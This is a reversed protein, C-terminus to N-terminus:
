RDGRRKERRKRNSAHCRDCIPFGFNPPLNKGCHRCRNSRAKVETRLSEHVGDAIEERVREWYLAETQRGLRYLLLLHLGVAKYSVEKQELNKNKIDPEPLEDGEVIAHMSDLWQQTLQSEKKSFPLHLFGYLDNLSLKAEIQTGRVLDYLEKEEALSAKETGYPSDFRDWLEFFTDLDHHYRQFREFVSSTPAIAFTRLSPDEQLLLHEMKKINKTFSVRGVEYIGKRGARGAIQKVEQSTLLRRRTGDFKENEMFVIRRIPLNLGMGIADTAVIVQTKGKIFQMMQKKRTEPPMSGYIMSVKHGNNQLRSATDLVKKRSFCVLADGNRVQKLKFEKKEVQLPIEREYNYVEAQEEGILELLLSRVNESGIIHVERAKVKTIAKYWSFGRDQDALMQAEDIVVVDYEDKEHFMEVTCAHHRANEIEKEEEGTKLNCPVGENNLKDYVELALLRLPALYMGSDAAKMRTLAKHTKGTNTEGIHLVYRVGGRYSPSYEQGFIDELMREEEQQKKIIAERELAIREERAVMVEKYIAVQESLDFPMDPLPVLDVVYEDQVWKFFLSKEKLLVSQTWKILREYSLEEEYLNSYSVLIDAPLHELIFSSIIQETYYSVFREYPYYYTEYEWLNRDWQESKKHISGTFEKLIDSVTKFEHAGLFGEEQLKDELAHPDMQKFKPKNSLDSLLKKAFIYRLEVYWNLQQDEVKQELFYLIEKQIGKQKSAKKKEEKEKILRERAQKHRNEWQQEDPARDLLWQKVQFPQENRIENRFMKNLLKKDVGEVEYGINRLFAKKHSRLVDNTVKNLWTNVWIQQFFSEREELYDQFSPCEDHQELYYTIDEEIKLKTEEIAKARITDLNQM